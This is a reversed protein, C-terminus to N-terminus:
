GLQLALLEILLGAQPASARSPAGARRRSWQAAAPVTMVRSKGVQSRSRRITPRPRENEAPMAASITTSIAAPRTSATGIPKPMPQITNRHGVLLLDAARALDQRAGAPQEVVEDVGLHALHQHALRPLAVLALFGVTAGAHCGLHLRAQFAQDLGVFRIRPQLVPAFLLPADSDTGQWRRSSPPAGM